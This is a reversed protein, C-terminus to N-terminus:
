VLLGYEYEQYLFPVVKCSLTIHSTKDSSMLRKKIINGWMLRWQLSPFLNDIKKPPHYPPPNVQYGWPSDESYFYIFVSSYSYHDIWTISIGTINPSTYSFKMILITIGCWKLWWFYLAKKILSSVSGPCSM